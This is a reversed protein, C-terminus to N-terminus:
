VPLPFVRGFPIPPNMARFINLFDPYELLKFLCLAKPHGPVTGLNKQAKSMTM